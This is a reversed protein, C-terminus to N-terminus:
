DALKRNSERDYWDLRHRNIIEDRRKRLAPETELRRFAEKVREEQVPNFVLTPMQPKGDDDFSFSMTEWVKLMLEASLSQGGADVTNGVEETVDSVANLLSKTKKRAMGEAAERMVHLAEEFGFSPKSASPREVSVSVAKTTTEKIDGDETEYSGGKGEHIAVSRVQAVLPARLAVEHKYAAM